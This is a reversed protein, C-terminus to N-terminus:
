SAKDMSKAKTTNDKMFLEMLGSKRALEMNSITRGSDVTSQGMPMFTNVKGMLKITKGNVRTFMVMQM